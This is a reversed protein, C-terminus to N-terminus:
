RPHKSVIDTVYLVFLITADWINDAEGIVLGNATAVWKVDDGGSIHIGCSFGRKYAYEAAKIINRYYGFPESPHAESKEDKWVWGKGRGLPNSLEIRVWGCLYEAIKHQIEEPIKEM